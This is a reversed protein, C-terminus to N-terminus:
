RKLSDGGGGRKGVHVMTSQHICSIGGSKKPYRGCADHYGGNYHVNESTSMINGLTSYVGFHVSYGRIDEVFILCPTRTCCLFINRNDQSEATINSHDFRKM